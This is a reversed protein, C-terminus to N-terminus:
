KIEELTKLNERDKKDMNKLNEKSIKMSSVYEM